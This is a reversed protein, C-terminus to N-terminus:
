DSGREKLYRLANKLWAPNTLRTGKELRGLMGNCPACLLGRVKRASVSHDIVLRAPISDCLPCRGGHAEVMKEYEAPTLGHRKLARDFLNSSPYPQNKLDAARVRLRHVSIGISAAAEKWTKGEALLALAEKIQEESFAQRRGLPRHTQM